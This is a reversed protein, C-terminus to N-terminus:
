KAKPLAKSNMKEAAIKRAEDYTSIPRFDTNAPFPKIAYVGIENKITAELSRIRDVWIKRTDPSDFDSRIEDGSKKVLNYLENRLNSCIDSAYDTFLIANESDWKELEIMFGVIDEKSISLDLEGNSSLKGFKLIKIFDSLYKYLIRYSDLRNQFILVSFQQDTQIKLQFLATQRAVITSILASFLVGILSIIAADM